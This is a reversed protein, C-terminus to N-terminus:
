PVVALGAARAMATQRRDFTCLETAGLARALAVHLMDMSRCLNQAAHIDALSEADAFVAPWAPAVVAFVGTGIDREFDAVMQAHEEPTIEGRGCRQAMAAKMELRHLSTLVPAGKERVLAQAQASNPEPFYLKLLVGSDFYRM